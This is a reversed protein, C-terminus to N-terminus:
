AKTDIQNGLQSPSAAAAGGPHLLKQAQRDGGSAEKMTQAPSETAEQVAASLAKLGAAATNGAGQAAAAGGSAPAGKAAPPAVQAAVQVSASVSGIGM